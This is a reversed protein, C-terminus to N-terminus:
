PRRGLAEDQTRLLMPLTRVGNDEPLDSSLVFEFSPMAPPLESPSIPRPQQILGMALTPQVMAVQGVGLLSQDVVRHALWMPTGRGLKLPDLVENRDLIAKALFGWATMWGLLLIDTAGIPLSPSSLRSILWVPGVIMIVALQM